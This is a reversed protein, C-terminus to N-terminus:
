ETKLNLIGVGIKTTITITPGSGSLTYINGNKVWGAGADVSSLGGEYTLRANVGEPVIINVTSAGTDIMVSADRQLEGDFSLTYTGAGSSFNMREFNANALGKLEMSSGGTSFTFSSM